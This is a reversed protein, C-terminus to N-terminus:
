AARREIQVIEGLGFVRKENGLIFAVALIGGLARITGEYTGVERVWDGDLEYILVIPQGEHLSEIAAIKEDHSQIKM